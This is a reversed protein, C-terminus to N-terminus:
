GTPMVLLQSLTEFRFVPQKHQALQKIIGLHCLGVPTMGLVDTRESIACHPMDSFAIPVRGCRVRQSRATSAM